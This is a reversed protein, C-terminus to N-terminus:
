VDVEVGSDKERILSCQLAQPCEHGVGDYTLYIFLAEVSHVVTSFLSRQRQVITGFESRPAVNAFLIEALVECSYCFREYNIPPLKNGACEQIILRKAGFFVVSFARRVGKRSESNRSKTSFKSRRTLRPSSAKEADCSNVM